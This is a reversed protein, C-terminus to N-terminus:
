VRKAFLTRSAPQDEKWAEELQFALVELPPWNQHPPPLRPDSSLEAPHAPDLPEPQYPKPSYRPLSKNSAQLLM